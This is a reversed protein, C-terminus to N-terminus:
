KKTKKKRVPTSPKDPSTEHIPYPIEGRKYARIGFFCGAALLFLSYFTGRSLGLFLSADPERFYECFIRFSGYLIMFEGSLKGPYRVANSKWFRLQLYILLVAGELAAEYLQSPHRPLILEPLLGPASRPFIVAWPMQSVHGWLEGNIFNAIRGLLLGMPVFTAAMDSFQLMSVRTRRQIYWCAAVVGIFGGHFSMGGNWVQLLFWPRTFLESTAYLLCYGLRAGILVGLVMAYLATEEQELTLPSKDKKIYLRHMCVGFVVGLVYALGYYSIGIDGWFHLLKPDLDHIWYGTESM